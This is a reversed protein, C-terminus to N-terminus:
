LVHLIVNSPGLLRICKKEMWESVFLKEIRTCTLVYKSLYTAWQPEQHCIIQPLVAYLHLCLPSFSDHLTNIATRGFYNAEIHLAELAPTVLRTFLKSPLSGRVRLTQLHQFPPAPETHLYSRPQDMYTTFLTLDRLAPFLSLTYVDHSLWEYREGLSLTTVHALNTGWLPPYSEFGLMEVKELVPCNPFETGDTPDKLDSLSIDCRRYNRPFCLSLRGPVCM